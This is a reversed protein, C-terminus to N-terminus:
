ASAEEVIKKLLLGDGNEWRGTLKGQWRGKGGGKVREKGFTEVVRKGASLVLAESGVILVAGGASAASPSGATAGCALLFLCEEGKELADIQPKLEAAVSALFELGNTADEERLIAVRRGNGSAGAQAWLDCAVFGALEGALRKERRNSAAVAQVLADVKSPLNPVACGAALAADRAAAQQGALYALVRPTGCAFYIRANTGRIPTTFPALYLTRLYALSPYHTGCCPNEDIGEITVTRQVPPREEGSEDAKYNEPVKEGLQVGSDKTALEFRVRVPRAEGILANCRDQVAALEEATPARALEVYNLEPFRQLSWSLTDLGYEHEFVASLLHQGTHQDQHDTRRQMNVEVRVKTGVEIPASAFHVADLNRRVVQRVTVPEREGIQENVLPALRGTDSPQGGGEPFLVTDLLEIEWEDQQLQDDEQAASPAVGKKGKGGKSAAPPPAPAVKTCRVVETELSSALPDRQCALMGVYRKAPLPFDLRAYDAPLAAISSSSSPLRSPPASPSVPAATTAM